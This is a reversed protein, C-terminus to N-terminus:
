QRAPAPVIDAPRTRFRSPKPRNNREMCQTPHARRQISKISKTEVLVAFFVTMGTIWLWDGCGAKSSQVTRITGTKAM